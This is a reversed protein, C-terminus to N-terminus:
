CIWCLVGGESGCDFVSVVGSGCSGGTPKVLPRAVIASFGCSREAAGSVKAFRGRKLGFASLGEIRRVLPKSWVFDPFTIRVARSLPAATGGTCGVFPTEVVTSGLAGGLGAGVFKALGAPSAPLLIPM